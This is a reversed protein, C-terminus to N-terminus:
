YRSIAEMQNHSLPFAYRTDPDAKIWERVQSALSARFESRFKKTGLLKVLPGVEARRSLKFLEHAEPGTLKEAGHRLLSNWYIHDTGRCYEETTLWGPLDIAKVYYRPNTCPMWFDNSIIQQVTETMDFKPDGANGVPVGERSWENSITDFILNREM